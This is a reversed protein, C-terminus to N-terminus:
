SRSRHATIAASIIATLLENDMELPDTKRKRFNVSKMAELERANASALLRKLIDIFLILLLLFSIVVGMGLVTLKFGATIM